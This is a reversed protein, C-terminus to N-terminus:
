EFMSSPIREVARVMVAAAEAGDAKNAGTVHVALLTGQSDIAVHRSRGKIKKGGHFGRAAGEAASKVSQSDLIAHRPARRARGLTLERWRTGLVQVAEQWVGRKQWRSFHDHVTDYPPFDHPLARWRCGERLRYLIAEVVRRESHKERAGRPDLRSFFPAVKEWQADSLDSPYNM